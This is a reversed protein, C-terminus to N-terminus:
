WWTFMGIINISMIFEWNHITREIGIYVLPFGVTLICLKIAADKASKTPYWGTIIYLCCIAWLALFLYFIGDILNQQGQGM